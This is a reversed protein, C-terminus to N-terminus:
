CFVFALIVPDDVFAHSLYISARYLWPQVTEILEIMIPFREM